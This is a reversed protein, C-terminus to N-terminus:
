SAPHLNVIYCSVLAKCAEQLGLRNVRTKHLKSATHPLPEKSYHEVNYTSFTSSVARGSVACFADDADCRRRLLQDFNAKLGDDDRDVTTM